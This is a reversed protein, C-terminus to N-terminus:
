IASRTPLPKPLRLASSCCFTGGFIIFLSRVAAAIGENSRKITADSDNYAKEQIVLIADGTEVAYPMVENQYFDLAQTRFQALATLEGGVPPRMAMIKDGGDKFKAWSRKAADVQTRAQPDDKIIQEDLEKVADNYKNVREQLLTADSTLPALISQVQAYRVAHRCRGIEFIGNLYTSNILDLDSQAQKVTTYGLAGIIIMGIIAIANLFVFKYAVRMNNLWSM